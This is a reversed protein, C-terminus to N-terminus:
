QHLPTAAICAMQRLDVPGRHHQQSDDGNEENDLKRECYEEHDEDDVVGEVQFQNLVKGSYWTNFPVTV